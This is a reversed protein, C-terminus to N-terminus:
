ETHPKKKAALLVNHTQQYEKTSKESLLKGLASRLNRRKLRIDRDLIVRESSTISGDEKVERLLEDLKSIEVNLKEMEAEAPDFLKKAVPKPTVKPTEASTGQTRGSINLSSILEMDPSLQVDQGDFNEQEESAIGIEDGQQKSAM